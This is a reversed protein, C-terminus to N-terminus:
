KVMASMAAASGEAFFESRLNIQGSASMLGFALTWVVLITAFAVALPRENRHDLLGEDYFVSNALNRSMTADGDRGGNTFMEVTKKSM